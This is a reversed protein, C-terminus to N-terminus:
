ALFDKLHKAIARNNEELGITIRLHEPLGYGAVHRVILGQKALHAHAAAAQKEDRFKVLIFNGISPHVILGLASLEKGLWALWKANFECAQKTYTVDRVAAIAAAQGTASVNFPGRIRHLVDVIHAPAYAWGVRLAALAYIKSFTRLMVTNETADVLERGNSYDSATAYESYAADVVLLVNLPLGDHLRKLEAKTIYSGTPNNPNAVFVIKTRPTVLALMADVDTRLDKEPAMVATVGFSQAYIKYMVFGHRSMLMEDGPGAYAHMLLSILEDSGNGCVLREAPISYVESIARRLESAGGDPYQYLTQPSQSLAVLAHQSPGLPNENASLNIVNGSEQKGGVYPAIDLIGPKPSPLNPM